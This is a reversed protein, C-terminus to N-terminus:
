PELYRNLAHSLERRWVDEPVLASVTRYSQVTTEAIVMVMTALELADGDRVSGTAQAERIRGHLERLLGQQSTGLREIFYKRYVEPDTRLLLGLVPHDRVREAIEVVGAVLSERDPGAPVVAQQIRRVERTLLAAIIARVDPWRRYITPRSVGARRAIEAIQTRAVGGYQILEAAADLIADDTSRQAANRSSM